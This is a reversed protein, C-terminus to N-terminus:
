EEAGYIGRIKQINQYYEMWHDRNGHTTKTHCSSCLTILNSPIINTKNYDIHHCSHRRGNERLFCSPNQCLGNDRFWIQERLNNTWNLGYAKRSNICGGRWLHSDPGSIKEREGPRAWRKKAADSIKIRVDESFHRGMRAVSIKARTELTVTRSRLKARTKESVPGRRTWADKLKARTEESVFRGTNIIRLKARTEKSQPHGPRGRKAASIKARTEESFFRTM